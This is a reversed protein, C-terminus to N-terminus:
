GTAKSMQPLTAGEPRRLLEILAAHKTGQRPSAQPDLAVGVAQLGAASIQFIGPRHSCAEILQANLLSDIVKTLAGGRLNQPFDALEKGPHNAAAELVTRQTDTLKM